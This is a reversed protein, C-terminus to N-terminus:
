VMQGQREDLAVAQGSITQTAEDQGTGFHHWPRRLLTGLGESTCEGIAQGAMPAKSKHCTVYANEESSTTTAGM